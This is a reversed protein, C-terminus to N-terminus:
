LISMQLEPSRGGVQVLPEELPGPTKKAHPSAEMPDFLGNEWTKNGEGAELDTGVEVLAGQHSPKAGEHVESRQEQDQQAVAQGSAKAGGVPM